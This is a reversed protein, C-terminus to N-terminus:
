SLRRQKAGPAQVTQYAESTLTRVQRVTLGVITLTLGAALDRLFGLVLQTSAIGRGSADVIPPAGLKYLGVTLFVLTLLFGLFYSADALEGDDDDSASLSWHILLGFTGAALAGLPHGFFVFPAIAAASLVFTTLFVFRQRRM